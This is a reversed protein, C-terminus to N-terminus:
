VSLAARARIGVLLPQRMALEARSALVGGGVAGDLALWAGDSSVAGCSGDRADRAIGSCSAIFGAPLAGGVAFGRGETVVLM